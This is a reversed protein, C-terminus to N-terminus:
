APVLLLIIETTMITKDTGKAEMVGQFTAITGRQDVYELKLLKLTLRIESGTALSSLFRVKDVGRNQGYKLGTIEVVEDFLQPVLSLLLFNHVITQASPLDTRAREEDVHLWQFDGTAEAFKNVRSQTIKWWRSLGIERGVHQNIDNINIKVKAM